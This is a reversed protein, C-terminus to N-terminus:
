IQFRFQRQHQSLEDFIFLPISREEDRLGAVNEGIAM